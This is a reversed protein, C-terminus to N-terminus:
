DTHCFSGTLQACRTLCKASVGWFPKTYKQTAASITRSTELDLLECLISSQRGAEGTEPAGHVRPCWPGDLGLDSANMYKAAPEYVSLKGARHLQWAAVATFLKTNSGIPYRRVLCCGAASLYLAGDPTSLLAM